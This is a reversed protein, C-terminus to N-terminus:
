LVASGFYEGNVFAESKVRNQCVVERRHSSEVLGHYKDEHSVNLLM